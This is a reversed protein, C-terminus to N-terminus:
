QFRPRVVSLFARAGEAQCTSATKARDEPDPTDATAVLCFGEAEALPVFLYRTVGGLLFLLM